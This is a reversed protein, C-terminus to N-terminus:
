RAVFSIQRKGLRLQLRRANPAAAIASRILQVPIAMGFDDGGCLERTREWCDDNKVPDCGDAYTVVCRDEDPKVRQRPAGGSMLYCGEDKVFLVGKPVKSQDIDEERCYGTKSTTGPKWLKKDFLQEFTISQAPAAEAHDLIPLLEAISFYLMAM